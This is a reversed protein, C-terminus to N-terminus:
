PCKQLASSNCIHRVPFRIGKGELEEIVAMFRKFQWFTYDLSEEGATAFHSFIGDLAIGMEKMRLVAPVTEEPLFGNRGLGTDVKVHIRARGGGASAKALAEALALDYCACTIDKKVAAEASRPLVPGMVLVSIKPCVERVRAAEDMTAVALSSCGEEELARAVATLGLSYANNKIVGMVACDAGILKKINRYNERLHALNVEM